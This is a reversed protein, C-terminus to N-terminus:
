VGRAIGIGHETRYLLGRQLAGAHRRGEGGQPPHGVVAFAVRRFGRLFTARTEDSEALTHHLRLFYGSDVDNFELLPVVASQSRDGAITVAREADRLTM